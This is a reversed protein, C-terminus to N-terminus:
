SHRAPTFSRIETPPKSPTAMETKNAFRDVWRERMVAVVSAGRRFGLGHGLVGRRLRM